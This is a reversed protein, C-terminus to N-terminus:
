RHYNSTHHRSSTLGFNRQRQSGRTSPLVPSPAAPNGPSFQGGLDLRTLELELRWDRSCLLYSYITYIIDKIDVCGYSGQQRPYLSTQVRSVAVDAAM